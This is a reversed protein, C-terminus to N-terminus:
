FYMKASEIYEGGGCKSWPCHIFSLVAVLGINLILGFIGEFGVM